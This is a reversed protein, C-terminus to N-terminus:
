KIINGKTLERAYKEKTEEFEEDRPAISLRHKVIVDLDKQSAIKWKGIIFEKSM